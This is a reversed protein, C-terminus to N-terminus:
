VSAPLARRRRMRWIVWAYLLLNIAALGVGLLAQVRPTLAAPYLTPVLSHELFGGEYGAEGAARRLSNELPTLPCIRGTLEVAVGWALAPLHLVPAYRWLLTTLAGFIAFFVFLAHLLLVLSALFTYAV